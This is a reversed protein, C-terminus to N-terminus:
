RAGASQVASACTRWSQRLAPWTLARVTRSGSCLRKHVQLRGVLARKRLQLCPQQVQRRYEACRERTNELEAELGATDLGGAQTAEAEQNHFQLDQIQTQTDRVHVEARKRAAEAAKEHQM